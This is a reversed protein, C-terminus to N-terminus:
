HGKRISKSGRRQRGLEIIHDMLTEVAARVERRRERDLRHPDIASGVELLAMALAKPTM